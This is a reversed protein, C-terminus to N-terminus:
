QDEVILQFLRTRAYAWQRRVTRETVGLIPAIEGETLGVFFKMMVVRAIEPEEEEFRALVEDILLIREDGDSATIDFDEINLPKVGGGRKRAQKERARDVLIRRMARAAARFFHARDNWTREGTGALQLWADHVLATPQLTQGAKEDALRRAALRRLEDYVLPLLEGSHLADGTGLAGMVRSYDDAM